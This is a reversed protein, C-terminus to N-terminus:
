VTLHGAAAPAVATVTLVAAAVSGSPTWGQGTVQVDVSGFAVVAGTPTLAGYSAQTDGPPGLRAGTGSGDCDGCTVPKDRDFM